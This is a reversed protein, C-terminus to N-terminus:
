FPPGMEFFQIQIKPGITDHRQKRASTGNGNSVSPLLTVRLSHRERRFVAIIAELMEPTGAEAFLNWSIDFRRTSLGFVYSVRRLKSIAELNRRIRNRCIVGLRLVMTVPTRQILHKANPWWLM